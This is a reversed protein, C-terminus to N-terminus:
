PQHERARAAFARAASMLRAQTQELPLNRLLLIPVGDELLPNSGYLWSKALTVDGVGAIMTALQLAFRLVNPRQPQRGEMWQKVARTEGVGVIAAVTPAGLMSVLERVVEAIPMSM